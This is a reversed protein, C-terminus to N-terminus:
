LLVEQFWTQSKPITTQGVVVPGKRHRAPICYAKKNNTCVGSSSLVFSPCLSLISSLSITFMMEGIKFFLAGCLKRCVQYNDSADKSIDGLKREILELLSKRQRKWQLLLAHSWLKSLMEVLATKGVGTEGEIIVPVGCKYRYTHKPFSPSITLSSFSSFPLFPFFFMTQHTYLHQIYVHYSRKGCSTHLQLSCTVSREHINLMKITYDLTLVYSSDDISTLRGEELEVGLARSLYRDLLKRSHLESLFSLPFVSKM